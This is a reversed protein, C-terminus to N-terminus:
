RKSREPGSEGGDSMQQPKPRPQRSVENDSNRTGNMKCGAYGAAQRQQRPMLVSARCKMLPCAVLWAGSIVWEINYLAQIVRQDRHSHSPKRVKLKSTRTSKTRLPTDHQMDKVFWIPNKISTNKSIADLHPLMHAEKQDEKRAHSSEWHELTM